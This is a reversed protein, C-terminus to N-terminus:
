FVFMLSVVAEDPLVFAKTGNEIIRGCMPCAYVTYKTVGGWGRIGFDVNLWSNIMVTYGGGLRFGFRDGEEATVEKTLVRAENYEQWRADGSVWWGSYVHWPWWRAGLSVNRRRRQFQTEPDGAHYTWPNYGGSLAVSWNQAVAYQAEANITGLFALDAFNTSVAAKQAFGSFTFAVAFALSLILKKLSVNM